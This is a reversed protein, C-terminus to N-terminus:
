QQPTATRAAKAARAVKVNKERLLRRKIAAPNTSPDLVEPRRQAVIRRSLEFFFLLDDAERGESRAALKVAYHVAEATALRSSPGRQHRWFRTTQESISVRRLNKLREEAAIATAQSWTAEIVVLDPVTKWDVAAADTTSGEGAPFLLAADAPLAPIDESSHIFIYDPALCSQPVASCKSQKEKPHLIVHVRFPLHSVTPVFPRVAPVISRCNVCVFRCSRKCNCCVTRESVALCKDLNEEM